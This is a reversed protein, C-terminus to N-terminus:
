PQAVGQQQAQVAAAKKKFWESAIYKCAKKAAGKTSNSGSLLVEGAANTLAFSSKVRTASGGFLLGAVNTQQESGYQFTFDAGDAKTTVTAAKCEKTISDIATANPVYVKAKPFDADTLGDAAAALSGFCLCVLCALILHRM